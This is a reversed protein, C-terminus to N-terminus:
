IGARALGSVSIKTLISNLLPAPSGTYTAEAVFRDTNQREAPMSADSLVSQFFEIVSLSLSGGLSVPCRSEAYEHDSVPGNNLEVGESLEYGRTIAAQHQLTGPSAGAALLGFYVGVAAFFLISNHNPRAKM